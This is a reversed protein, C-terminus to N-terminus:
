AGIAPDLLRCEPHYRRRHSSRPYSAYDSAGRLEIHAAPRLVRCFTRFSHSPSPVTTAGIFLSSGTCTQSSTTSLEPLRSIIAAQILAHAHNPSFPPVSHLSAGNALPKLRMASGLCRPSIWTSLSRHVRPPGSQQQILACRREDSPSHPRAEHAIRASAKRLMCTASCARTRNTHNLALSRHRRPCSSWPFRSSSSSSRAPQSCAARHGGAV